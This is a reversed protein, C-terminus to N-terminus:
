VKGRSTMALRRLLRPLGFVALYASSQKTAESRAVPSAPRSCYNILYNGLPTDTFNIWSNLSNMERPLTMSKATATMMPAAKLAM